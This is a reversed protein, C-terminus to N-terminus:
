IWPFPCSVLVVDVPSNGKVKTMKDLTKVDKRHAETLGKAVAGVMENKNNLIENIIFNPELLRAKKDM